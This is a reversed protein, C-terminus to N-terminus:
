LIPFAFRVKVSITINHLLEDGKQCKSINSLEDEFFPMVKSKDEPATSLILDFSNLDHNIRHLM